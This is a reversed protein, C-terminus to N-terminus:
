QLKHKTQTIFQLPEIGLRNALTNFADIQNPHYAIGEQEDTNQMNKREPDGPVLVPKAPNIQLDYFCLKLHM